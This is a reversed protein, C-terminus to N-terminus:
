RQYGVVAACGFRAAVREAKESTRSAVAVLDVGDCAAMVPLMRRVAIGACGLIGVRVAGGSGSESLPCRVAGSRM